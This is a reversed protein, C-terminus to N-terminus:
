TDQQDDHHGANYVSTLGDDEIKWSGVVKGRAFSRGSATVRHSAPKGAHGAAVYHALDLEIQRMVHAYDVPDFECTVTLKLGM